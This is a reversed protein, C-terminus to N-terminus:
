VTPHNHVRYRAVVHSSPVPDVDEALDAYSLQTMKRAGTFLFRKITLPMCRGKGINGITSRTLALGEKRM